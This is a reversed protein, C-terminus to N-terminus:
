TTKSESSRPVPFKVVTGKGDLIAKRCREAYLKDDNEVLYRAPEFLDPTGILSVGARKAGTMCKDTFLEQRKEPALLRYGNGFLVGNAYETVEERSFDEHINRELQSLKDINIAKNDKGEAEGLFRGEAAVFIADFESGGENFREASYGFLRLVELIAIELPKGKEYLLYRLIGSQGKEEELKALRAQALKLETNVADISIRLEREKALPYKEPTAWEPPVTKEKDGKLAKHVEVLHAALRNGFTVAESSWYEQGKKHVTFDKPLELPPLFVIHGSGFRLVGSVSDNKQGVTLAPNPLKGSPLYAEYSSYQSCLKWYAALVALDKTPKIATGSAVVPELDVPLVHYSNAPKMLRTTKQNRGTGSYERDGSDVFISEPEALYYFITKGDRLARQLQSNWHNIDEVLKFSEHDYFALKGQLTTDAQFEALSPWFVIIESDLLSKKSRFTAFDFQEGPLSIYISIIVSPKDM